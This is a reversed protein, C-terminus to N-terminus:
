INALKEKLMNLVRKKDTSWMPAILDRRAGDGTMRHIVINDPLLKICDRVLDTYEEMSLCRFAGRAYEAALDTGKLVHLLHIKIGSIPQSGVYEATKLMDERTEFPLGLIIHAVVEIGRQTLARVADDYVRLPYGRRIYEATKEHITQLGLEIWVPKIRNIETLLDLVEDPLCDPRTAIAVAVVDPHYAAEEYLSKLRGVPAYTGSFAQFYAIFRGGEKPMKNRVLEKGREIQETIGLDRNGSFEGSGCGSCFICGRTDIKGDRNPCTFGADLAIRYVKCSFREMFYQNATRNKM